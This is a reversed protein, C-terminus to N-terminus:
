GSKPDQVFCENLLSLVTECQAKRQEVQQKNIATAIKEFWYYKPCIEENLIIVM